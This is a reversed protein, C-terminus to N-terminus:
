NLLSTRLTGKKKGPNLSFLNKETFELCKYIEKEQETLNELNEALLDTEDITIINKKIVNKNFPTQQIIENYEKISPIANCHYESPSYSKMVDSYKEMLWRIYKKMEELKYRNSLGASSTTKWYIYKDNLFCHKLKLEYRDGHGHSAKIYTVCRPLKENINTANRLVSRKRNAQQLPEDVFRLNSLRNDCPVRNIHDISTPNDHARQITRNYKQCLDAIESHMIRRGGAYYTSAIHWKQQIIEKSFIADFIVIIENNKSKIQMACYDNNNHSVFCYDNANM